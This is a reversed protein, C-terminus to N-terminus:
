CSPCRMARKAPLSVRYFKELEAQEYGFFYPPMLLLGDAGSSISEEALQISGALTAHSVGAVLPVRSRKRGWISPLASGTPFATIRFFEGVADLLCIAKVGGSALFDLLDLCASYDPDEAGDRHPTVAAAFVGTLELQRAARAM